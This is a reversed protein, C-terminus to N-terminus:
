RSRRLGGRRSPSSVKLAARTAHGGSPRRPRGDRNAHPQAAVLAQGRGRYAREDGSGRARRHRDVLPVRRSPRRAVARRTSSPRRTPSYDSHGSRRHAEHDSPDHLCHNAAPPAEAVSALPRQHQQRRPPASSPSRAHRHHDSPRRDHRETAHSTASRAGSGRYASRVLGRHQFRTALYPRRRSPDRRAPRMPEQKAQVRPRLRLREPIPARLIRRPLSPIRCALHRRRTRSRLGGARTM